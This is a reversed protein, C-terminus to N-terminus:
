IHVTAETGCHVGREGAANDRFRHAGSTNHQARLVAVFPSHDLQVHESDFSPLLQYM